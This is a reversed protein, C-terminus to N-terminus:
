GRPLAPAVIQLSAPAVTVRLQRALGLWEGDAALPLADSGQLVLERFAGTQVWPHRLHAGRTLTPLMRLTGWRDFPGARLWHLQGDDVRAQPVAQLGSGYTPTNLVSTFLMPGAPLAQGDAQGQANWHRLHRCEALTAWLYRPLGRLWRPGQLARLGVASDFGCTLSSAFPSRHVDGQADSWIALGTDIARTRGHVADALAQRWDHRNLGLARALDNGSGLPVLGVGLQRALLAPLWRNFSGDGGVLVVRSGIPEHMLLDLAQEPTDPAHLRPIPTLAELAEALAPLRKRVRGGQAHPNALVLTM